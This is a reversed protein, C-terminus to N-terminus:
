VSQLPVVQDHQLGAVGVQQVGHGHPQAFVAVLCGLLNRQTYGESLSNPIQHVKAMNGLFRSAPLLVDALPKEEAM